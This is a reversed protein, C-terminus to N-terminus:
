VVILVKHPSKSRSRRSSPDIVQKPRRVPSHSTNRRSSSDRTIQKPVKKVKSDIQEGTGTVEKRKVLSGRKRPVSNPRHPNDVSGRRRVVTSRPSSSSSDNDPLNAAPEKSFDKRENPSFKNVSTFPDSTARKKQSTTGGKSIPRAKRRHVPSSGRSVSAFPCARTPSMLQTDGEDLSGRRKTKIQTKAGAISPDSPPQNFEELSSVKKRPSSRHKKPSSLPRGVVEAQHPKRSIHPSQSRVRRAEVKSLVIKTPDIPTKNYGPQESTGDVRSSTVMKKLSATTITKKKMVDEDGFSPIDNGISEDLPPAQAFPVQAFVSSSLPISVPERKQRLPSQKVQMVLRRGMQKGAPSMSRVRRHSLQRPSSPIEDAKTTSPSWRDDTRIPMRRGLPSKSARPQSSSRMINELQPSKTRALSKRRPSSKPPTKTTGGGSKNGPSTVDESTSNPPLPPHDDQGNGLRQVSYKRYKLAFSTNPLPPHSYSQTSRCSVSNNENHKKGLLHHTSPQKTYDTQHSLDVLMKKRSKQTRPTLPPPADIHNSTSVAWSSSTTAPVAATNPDARVYSPTKEQKDHFLPPNQLTQTPIAVVAFADDMDEEDDDIDILRNDIATKKLPSSIPEEPMPRVIRKTNTIGNEECSTVSLKKRLEKTTPSSYSHTSREVSSEVTSQQSVTSQLKQRDVRESLSAVEFDSDDDDESEDGVRSKTNNNSCRVLEKATRESLVARVVSGKNSDSSNNDLDVASGGVAEEEKQWVRQQHHYNQHAKRQRRRSSRKKPLSAVGDNMEMSDTILSSDSTRDDGGDDDDDTTSNTHNSQVHLMKRLLDRSPTTTGHHHHHPDPNQHPNTLAGGVNHHSSENSMMSTSSSSSSCSTSDITPTEGSGNNDVSKKLHRDDVDALGRSRRSEDQNATSNSALSNTGAGDGGCQRQRRSSM